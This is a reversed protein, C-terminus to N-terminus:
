TTELQRIRDLAGLIARELTEDLTLGLNTALHNFLDDMAVSHLRSACLVEATFADLAHTDGTVANWAVSGEAWQRLHWAAAAKLM